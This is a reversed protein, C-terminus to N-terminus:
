VPKEEFIVVFLSALVREGADGTVGFVVADGCPVFVSLDPQPSRWCAEAPKEVQDHVNGSTSTSKQTLTVVCIHCKHVHRKSSTGNVQTKIIGRKNKCRYM